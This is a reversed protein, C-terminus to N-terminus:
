ALVVPFSHYGMEGMKDPEKQKVLHATFLLHESWWVQGRAYM